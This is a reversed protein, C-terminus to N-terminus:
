WLGTLDVKWVESWPGPKHNADMAQMRPNARQGTNAFNFRWRLPLWCGLSCTSGIQWNLCPGFSPALRLAILSWRVVPIALLFLLNIILAAIQANRSGRMARLLAWTWGGFLAAYLLTGLLVAGMSNLFNSYQHQFDLFARWLETLLAIVSVTIAGNLSTFWTKM